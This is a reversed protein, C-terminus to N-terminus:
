GTINEWSIEKTPFYIGFCGQFFRGGYRMGNMVYQILM